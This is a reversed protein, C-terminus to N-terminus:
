DEQPGCFQEYLVKIVALTQPSDIRYFINKGERRTSVLEENRLVTLQQSLTPQTIGLAVEIDSVCLEGESLRCLIKLRDPNSLVKLLRCAQEAKAQMKELEIEVPTM